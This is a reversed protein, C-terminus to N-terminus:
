LAARLVHVAMGIVALVGIAFSMTRFPQKGWLYFVSHLLRMATFTGFYAVAGTHSPGSAAYLAGVVFFPIANEIANQHARKVRAVDPHDAEAESAKNLKADEPNVYQKRLARVTGTWGALAIMHLALITACLTYIRFAEGMM